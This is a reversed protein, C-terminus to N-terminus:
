PIGHGSLLCGIRTDAHRIMSVLVDRVTEVVRTRGNVLQHRSRFLRGAATQSAAAAYHFLYVLFLYSLIYPFYLHSVYEYTFAYFILFLTAFNVLLAVLPPMNSMFCAATPMLFLIATQICLHRVPAATLDRVMSDSWMITFIVGVISNEMGLIRQLMNVFILILIFKLMAQRFNRVFSEKENDQRFARVARRDPM